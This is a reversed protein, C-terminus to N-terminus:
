PTRPQAEEQPAQLYPEKPEPIPEVSEVDIKAMDGHNPPRIWTGRVKVWADRLAQTPEYNRLVVFTPQADAACCTMVYRYVLAKLDARDFSDPTASLEEATPIMLRGITEVRTVQRHKIPYYLEILPLPVMPAILAAPDHSGSLIPQAPDPPTPEDLSPPLSTSSAASQSAPSPTNKEAFQEVRLVSSPAPRTLQKISQSNLSTTGMIFFLFLPLMHVVTHLWHDLPSGHDHDHHEHDHHSPFLASFLVLLAFIATASILIWGQWGIIYTKYTGNILMLSLFIMWVICQTLRSSTM